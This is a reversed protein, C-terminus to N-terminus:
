LMWRKKQWKRLVQIDEKEKAVELLCLARNYNAASELNQDSANIQDYLKIAEATHGDLARLTAMDFLVTAKEDPTLNQALLKTFLEDALDPRGAELYVLAQDITDAPQTDAQLSSWLLLVLVLAKM